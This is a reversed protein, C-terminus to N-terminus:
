LELDDICDHDCGEGWFYCTTNVPYIKEGAADCMTRIRGECHKAARKLGAQLEKLKANVLDRGLADMTRDLSKHAAQVLAVDPAIHQQWEPSNFFDKMGPSVFSPVIYFCPRAAYGNTFAGGSRARTYLIEQTTLNLLIQLVVLSEDMREMILILNYEELIDQILKHISNSPGFKRYHKWKREFSRRVEPTSKNLAERHRQINPYGMEKALQLRYSIHDKILTYNRTGLDDFYYMHNEFGLLAAQLFQDTPEKLGASVQFHFV